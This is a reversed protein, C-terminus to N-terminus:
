LLGGIEVVAKVFPYDDFNKGACGSFEPPNVDFITRTLSPPVYAVRRIDLGVLALLDFEDGGYNRRGGKGCRKVYWRYMRKRKTSQPFVRPVRTSKVQIRVLLGNFDVAIDYACNQDTRFATFGSLLLDACVLHEGATGVELDTPERGSGLENPSARWDALATNQLPPPGSDPSGARLWRQYCAFCWTRTIRTAEKDCRTCIGAIRM